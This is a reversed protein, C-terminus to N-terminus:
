RVEDPDEPHGEHDGQEMRGQDRDAEAPHREGIIDQTGAELEDEQRNGAEAEAKDLEQAGPRLRRAASLPNHQDAGAGRALQDEPINILGPFDMIGDDTNDIIVRIFPLAIEVADRNDAAPLFDEPRHLFVLDVLDEQRDGAGRRLLLPIDQRDTVLRVALDLLEGAHILEHVPIDGDGGHLIDGHLIQQAPFRDLRVELLDKVLNVAPHDHDGAAASGDAGLEAALDRGM